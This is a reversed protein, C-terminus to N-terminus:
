RQRRGERLELGDEAAWLLLNFADDRRVDIRAEDAVLEGHAGGFGEGAVAGLIGPQSVAEDQGVGGDRVIGNDEGRVAEDFDGTVGPCVDDRAVAAEELASM